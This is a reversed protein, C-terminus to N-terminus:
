PTICETKPHHNCRVRAGGQQPRAVGLYRQTPQNRWLEFDTLSPIAPGAEPHTHIAVGDDVFRLKSAPVFEHVGRVVNGTVGNNAFEIAGQPHASRAARVLESVIGKLKSPLATYIGAQADTSAGGAVLAAGAKRAIKGGPGGLLMLGADVADQPVLSEVTNRLDATQQDRWWRPLQEAIISLAGPVPPHKPEAM